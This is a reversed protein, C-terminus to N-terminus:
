LHLPNGGPVIQDCVCRFLNSRAIVDPAAPTYLMSFTRTLPMTAVFFSRTPAVGRSEGAVEAGTTPGRSGNSCIIRHIRKGEADVVSKGGHGGLYGEDDDESDCSDPLGKMDVETESDSADVEPIWNILENDGDLDFMRPTQKKEEEKGQQVIISTSTM